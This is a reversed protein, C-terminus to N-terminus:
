IQSLPQYLKKLINVQGINEGILNRVSADGMFLGGNIKLVLSQQNLDSVMFDKPPWLVRIEVGDGTKIRDGASLNKVRLSKIRSVLEKYEASNGERGSWFLYGVSYRDLVSLIGTLHDAHPHTLFVMEMNKDWFVMHNSLCTLVKEDPGGDILVDKGKPTKIYIADGQGVDCFVVQLKGNPLKKIEGILSIFVIGVGLVVGFGFKRWKM